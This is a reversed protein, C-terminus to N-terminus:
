KPLAEVALRTGIFPLTDSMVVKGSPDTFETYTTFSISDSRPDYQITGRQKVVLALKGTADAILSKFTYAGSKPSTSIWTGVAPAEGPHLPREGLMIGDSTFALLAPIKDVLEINWTGVLKDFRPKEGAGTNLAQVTSSAMPQMASLGFLLAATLVRGSFWRNNM